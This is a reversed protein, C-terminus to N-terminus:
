GSREPELGYARIKRDLTPRSIGLMEAARKKQWGTQRLVRLIHQREVDALTQRGPGSPQPQDLGALTILDRTVIDSRTLVVARQLVNYLERVNGPWHHRALLDLADPAVARVEKGIERAVRALLRDVLIPIDEVRERLPPLRIEVVRLRYYLDERFRGAEVEARLNRHTAAMVRAELKRAKAEGVREFTREQLVRLLKAQLDMALEGIEDLLLTGEGAIELRGPRDAVAGTFSGRSHGFLESEVVGPALAACNFAVFPASRSPGAAHIARAVLEKGTGSEGYILVTARNGAVQGVTKYVERMAASRGVLLPSTDDEGTPEDVSGVQALRRRVEQEELARGMVNRLAQLDLPKVLFDYAGRQIATVTSEMDDRGSVVVVTTGSPHIREVLDLGDADPLGLDLLALDFTSEGFLRLASAGDRAVEVDHGEGGVVRELTACLAPDDDVVLVHAM